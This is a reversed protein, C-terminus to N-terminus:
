KIKDSNREIIKNLKTLDNHNDLVKKLNESKCYRDSKSLNEEATIIQFNSYHNLTYVEKDNIAWSLPIIHDLQMGEAYEIKLYDQFEKYKIGIIERTRKSKGNRLYRTVANRTNLKLKFLGDKKRKSKVYEAVYDKLKEKNAERYQKSYKIAIEKNNKRWEKIRETNEERYKRDVETLRERNDEKWKKRYLNLKEANEERYKKKQLYIKDKNAKEYKKNKENRCVKCHSAFGNKNTTSKHFENTNKIILCKTCRKKGEKFLKLKKKECLRNAIQEATLKSERYEKNKKSLKYKNVKHYVRNYKKVCLKCQNRFGDKSGKRKNFESVDKVVNCKNCKKEM